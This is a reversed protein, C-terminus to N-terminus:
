PPLLASSPMDRPDRGRSRTELTVPGGSMSLINEDARGDGGKDVVVKQRHLVTTEVIEPITLIFYAMSYFCSETRQPDHCACRFFFESQSNRASASSTKMPQSM